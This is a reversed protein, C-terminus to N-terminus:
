YICIVRFGSGQVRFGAGQSRFGVGQVRFGSGQVRYGSGQVNSRVDYVRFGSGQVLNYEVSISCGSEHTFGQSEVRCGAGKV